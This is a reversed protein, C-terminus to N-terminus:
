IFHDVIRLLMQPEAPKRMVAVAGSEKARQAIDPSGWMLVVPVNALRPAKRLETLLEWGDLVPMVVDLFILAPRVESDALLRLAEDGNAASQVNHGQTSLFDTLAECLERNDDFLLIM